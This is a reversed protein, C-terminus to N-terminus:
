VKKIFGPSSEYIIKDKILDEMIKEIEAESFGRTTAELILQERQVLNKPGVTLQNIISLLDIKRDIYDERRVKKQLLNQFGMLEDFDPMSEGM